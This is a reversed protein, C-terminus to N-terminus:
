LKVKQIYPLCDKLPFAETCEWFVWSKLILDHLLTSSMPRHPLWRPPCYEWTQAQLLAPPIVSSVCVWAPSHLMRQTHLLFYLFGVALPSSASVLFHAWPTVLASEVWLHFQWFLSPWSSFHHSWLLPLEYTRNMVNAISWVKLQPPHLSPEATLFLLQKQIPRPETGLVLM